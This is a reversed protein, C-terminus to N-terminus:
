QRPNKIKIGNTVNNVQFWVVNWGITHWGNEEFLNLISYNNNYRLCRKVINKVEVTKFKFKLTSVLIIYMCLHNM